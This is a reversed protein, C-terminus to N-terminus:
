SPLPGSLIFPAALDIVFPRGDRAPSVCDREGTPVTSFEHGRDCSAHAQWAHSARLRRPAGPRGGFMSVMERVLREGVEAGADFLSRLDEAFLGAYPNTIVATGVFRTVPTEILEGMESLVVDRTVLLKRVRLVSM